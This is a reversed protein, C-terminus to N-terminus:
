SEHRGANGTPQCFGAKARINKCVTLEGSYELEYDFEALAKFFAEACDQGHLEICITRVKGLWEKATAGFVELEAREIDIKLIDVQSGGSMEILTSVDWAPVDQAANATQPSVQTAWELDGRSVSVTTCKSWVAGHLILARDGYPELNSGCVKVNREDPEVALVRSNPFVNLFYASSYGVNAGLDIISSVDKLGRLCSYEENNFIQAFVAQDSSGRMRMTLAYHVQHPRVRWEEPERLGLEKRLHILYFRLAARAGIARWWVMVARIIQGPSKSGLSM